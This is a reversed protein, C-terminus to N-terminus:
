WIIKVSSWRKMKVNWWQSPDDINKRFVDWFYGFSQWYIWNKRRVLFHKFTCVVLTRSTILVFFFKKNKGPTQFFPLSRLLIEEILIAQFFHCTHFSTLCPSCIKTVGLVGWVVKDYMKGQIIKVEFLEM